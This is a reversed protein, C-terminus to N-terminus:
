GTTPPVAMPELAPEPHHHRRHWHVASAMGLLLWGVFSFTNGELIMETLSDIALVGMAALAGGLFVVRAGPQRWANRLLDWAAALYIGIYAVAGLVGFEVLLHLWFNDVMRKPAEDGLDDYIPSGYTMAVAGGYRGPGVGLPLDNELLGFGQQVFIVRLDRGEDIADFRSFTSGIFDTNETPTVTGEGLELINRPLNYGVAIALAGIVVALLVARWELLLATVIFAGALGFWAGRSFTFLLALTLIFSIGICVMRWRFAPLRIGGFLTFPLAIALVGGFINPNGNFISGVRDGEGFRGAHAGLGFINPNLIVQALGILASVTAIGVLVTVFVRLHHPRWAVMRALFFLAMADVTFAIGLAANFPRVGNVLASVVAIVVFGVLPVTIWHRFAPVFTGARIARTSIVIGAVLLFGESFVHALLELSEPILWIAVYRDFIPMVGIAMLTARPWYWSAYALSLLLLVGAGAFAIVSYRALIMALIVLGVATALFRAARLTMRVGAISLGIPQQASRASNM